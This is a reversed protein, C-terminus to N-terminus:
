QRSQAVLSKVTEVELSMEFAKVGRQHTMTEVGTGVYNVCCTPCSFRYKDVVIEGNYKWAEHLILVRNHEPCM